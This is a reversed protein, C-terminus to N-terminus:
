VVDHILGAAHVIGNPKRMGRALQNLTVRGAEVDARQEPTANHAVWVWRPNAGTMYLVHDLMLQYPVAAGTRLDVALFAAETPSPRWSRPDLTKGALV